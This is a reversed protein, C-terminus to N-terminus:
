MINELIEVTNLKSINQTQVTMTQTVKLHTDGDRNIVFYEREVLTCAPKYTNQLYLAVM